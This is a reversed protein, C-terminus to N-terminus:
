FLLRHSEKRRKGKSITFPCTFLTEVDLYDLCALFLYLSILNEESVGARRLDVVDAPIEDIAHSVGATLASFVKWGTEEWEPAGKSCIDKWIRFLDAQKLLLPKDGYPPIYFYHASIQAKPNPKEIFNDPLGADKLKSKLYVPPVGMDILGGIMMDATLKGYCRIFLAKM